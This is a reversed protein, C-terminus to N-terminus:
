PFLVNNQDNLLISALEHDPSLKIVTKYLEQAKNNEKLKELSLGLYLIADIYDNSIDVAKQFYESATKYDQNIYNVLGLNYLAVEPTFYSPDNILSKWIEIAEKQKELQNLLCAYNNKIDAKKDPPIDKKNIIKKFLTLSGEFIKLQYLITAKLALFDPLPSINISKDVLILAKKLNKEELEILSQEFYNQALQLNKQKCSSLFILFFFFIIFNKLKKM